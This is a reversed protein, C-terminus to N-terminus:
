LQMLLKQNYRQAHHYCRLKFQVIICPGALTLLRFCQESNWKFNIVQKLASMFSITETIFVPVRLTTHINFIRCYQINLNLKFFESHFIQLSFIPEQLINKSGTYLPTKWVKM